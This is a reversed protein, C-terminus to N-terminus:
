VVSKRDADESKRIADDAMGRQLRTEANQAIAQELETQLKVEDHPADLDVGELQDTKALANAQATEANKEAELARKEIARKVRGAMEVLDDTESAAVDVIADFEQRGGVLEYFLTIDARVGSLRVLSKIRYKDRTKADNYSPSHIATIDLDGLGEVELEGEERVVRSIRLTKGAITAEGNKAGDRKTPKTGVTGNVALQATRLITTKGDGQKGYLIHLGTQKLEYEFEIVPGINKVSISTM